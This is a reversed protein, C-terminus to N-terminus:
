TPWLAARAAPPDATGDVVVLIQGALVLEEYREAEDASLGLGVLAGTVAGRNSHARAVDLGLSGTGAVPGFGPLAGGISALWDLVNHVPHSTTVDELDHSAGTEDDLASAEGPTRAVVSIAHPEVGAAELALIADRAQTHEAYVGIIPIGSM